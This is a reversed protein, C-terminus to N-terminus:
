NRLLYYLSVSLPLPLYLSLLRLLEIPLYLGVRQTLTSIEGLVSEPKRAPGARGFGQRISRTQGGPNGRSAGSGRPHAGNQVAAAAVADVGGCKNAVANAGANGAADAPATAVLADAPAAAETLTTVIPPISAPRRARCQQSRRRRHGGGGCGCRGTAAAAGRWVAECCCSADTASHAGAASPLGRGPQWPPPARLCRRRRRTAWCRRCPTM